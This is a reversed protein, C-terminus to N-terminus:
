YFSFRGTIIGGDFSHIRKTGDSSYIYIVSKQVYDVADSIYIEGNDPDVGLGYFNGSSEPIIPTAPFTAASILLKFVGDQLCVVSDKSTNLCLSGCSKSLPLNKLIVNSSNEICILAPNIGLSSKGSCSVWHNQNKDKIIESSGFGIDISDKLEDTAANIVYVYKTNPSCVLIMNGDLDMQETWGPIPIKKLFQFSSSYVSVGNNYISSVYYKNNSKVVYRPSKVDNITQISSLSTLNFVEIKDSNNMVLLAQNDETFMSQFVDGLDRSTSKKFVDHDVTKLDKRYMSLHANGWM